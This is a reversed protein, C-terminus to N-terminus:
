SPTRVITWCSVVKSKPYSHSYCMDIANQDRVTFTYQGDDDLMVGGRNDPQLAGILTETYKGNSSKGAFRNGVQDTITYTFEIGNEPFVPGNQDATRYPNPGIHVAYATGKWIGKLDPVAQTAAASAGAQPTQAVATGPAIISASIFLATLCKSM